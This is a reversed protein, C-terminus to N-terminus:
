NLTSMLIFSANEMALNSSLGKCSASQRNLHEVACWGIVQFHPWAIKEGFFNYQLDNGFIM